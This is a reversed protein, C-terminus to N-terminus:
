VGGGTLAASASRFVFDRMDPTNLFDTVTVPRSAGQGTNRATLTVLTDQGPRIVAPTFTKGLTLAPPEGVRVRAVNDDDTEGPRGSTNTACDAILNLYASGRNAAATTVRVLVPRTEDAALRLATIAPENADIQGNGNLDEHITLTGPTFQSDADSVRLNLTNGANGSNGVVYRLVASEGPLLDFSQGPAAVTGNPLVSAACVATVTTEVPPTPISTPPGGEPTFELVASNQIVTGAPTGAAYAPGVLTLILATLTHLVSPKRM